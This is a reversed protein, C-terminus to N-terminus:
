VFRLKQGHGVFEGPFLRGGRRSYRSPMGPDRSDEQCDRRNNGPTEIEGDRVSEEVIPRSLGPDARMGPPRDVEYVSAAAPEDAQYPEHRQQDGRESRSEGTQPRKSATRGIDGKREDKARRDDRTQFLDRIDIARPVERMEAAIAWVDAQEGIPRIFQRAGAAVWPRMRRAPERQQSEVEYEEVPTWPERASQQGSRYEDPRDEGDALLSSPCMEKRM